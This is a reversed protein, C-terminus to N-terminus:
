NCGRGTLSVRKEQIRFTFDLLNTLMALTNELSNDTLDVTVRCDMLHRDSVNMEVGFKRSIKDIVDRMAANDFVMNYETDATMLSVIGRDVTFHQTAGNQDYVIRQNPLVSINHDSQSSFVEVKGTLVTLDIEKPQMKLHFSTGVVKVSIPGQAITFSSNPIKAVEFLAEGYLEAHRSGDESEYYSFNSGPQLWVLSGDNLILKQFSDSVEVQVERTDALRLQIAITVSIIVLLSAAIRGWNNYFFKRVKSRSPYLAMVDNVTEDANIISAFLRQQVDDSLELEENGETKNLQLWAEIKQRELDTVKNAIYRDILRDFDSRNM